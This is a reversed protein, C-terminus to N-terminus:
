QFGYFGQFGYFRLWSSILFFHRVESEKRRKKEKRQRPLHCGIQNRPSISESPGESSASLTHLVFGLLNKM